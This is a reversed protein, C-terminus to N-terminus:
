LFSLFHPRFVASKTVRSWKTSKSTCRPLPSFPIDRFMIAAVGVGVGDRCSKLSFAQAQIKLYERELSRCHFFFFIHLVDRGRGTPQDGEDGSARDFQGAKRRRLVWRYPRYEIKALLRKTSCFTYVCNPPTLRYIRPLPSPPIYVWVTGYDAVYCGLYWSM